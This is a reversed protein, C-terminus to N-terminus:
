IKDERNQNLLQRRKKSYIKKIVKKSKGVVSKLWKRGHGSMKDARSNSSEPYHNNLHKAM